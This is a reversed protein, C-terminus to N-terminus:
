YLKLIMPLVVFFVVAFVTTIKTTIKSTIKFFSDWFQFIHALAVLIKNEGRNDLLHLVKMLRVITWYGLSKM